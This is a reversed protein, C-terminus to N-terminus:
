FLGNKKVVKCVFLPINFFDFTPLKPINLLFCYNNYSFLAIPNIGTLNFELLNNLFANALSHFEEPQEYMYFPM